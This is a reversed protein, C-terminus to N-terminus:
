DKDSIYNAFIKGLETPQRKMRYVTEKATCFNEPKIYDCKNIKAKIAKAKPTM